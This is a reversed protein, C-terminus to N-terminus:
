APLRLVLAGYISVTNMGQTVGYVSSGHEHTLRHPVEGVVHRRRVAGELCAVGRSLANKINTCIVAHQVCQVSVSPLLQPGEDRAHYQRLHVSKGLLIVGGLMPIVDITRRLDHVNPIPGVPPGQEHTPEVRTSAAV